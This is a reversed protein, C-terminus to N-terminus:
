RRLRLYFPPRVVLTMRPEGDRHNWRVPLQWTRGAHDFAVAMESTRKPWKHKENGRPIPVLKTDFEARGVFRPSTGHTLGALDEVSWDLTWVRRGDLTELEPEDIGLRRAIETTAEPSKGARERAQDAFHNAQSQSDCDLLPWLANADGAALARQAKEFVAVAARASVAEEPEVVPPLPGVVSELTPVSLEARYDMAQGGFHSQVTFRYPVLTEEPTNKLVRIGTPGAMKTGHNKLKTDAPDGVFMEPHAAAVFPSVLLRKATVSRAQDADDLGLLERLADQKEEPLGDFTRRVHAALRGAQQHTSRDVLEWAAEADGAALAQRLRVHADKLRFMWEGASLPGAVSVVLLFVVPKM